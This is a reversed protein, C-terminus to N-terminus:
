LVAAEVAEGMARSRLPLLWMPVVPREVAWTRWSRLVKTRSPETSNSRKASPRCIRVSHIFWSFSASRTSSRLPSTVM